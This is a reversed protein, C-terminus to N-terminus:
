IHKLGWTKSTQFTKTWKEMSVMNYFHTWKVLGAVTAETFFLVLKATGLSLHNLAAKGKPLNCLRELSKKEM